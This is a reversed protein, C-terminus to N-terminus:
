EDELIYEIETKGFLPGALPHWLGKVPFWYKIDMPDSLYLCFRNEDASFRTGNSLEVEGISNKGQEFEPRYTDELRSCDRFNLCPIGHTHTTRAFTDEISNNKSFRSSTDQEYLFRYYSNRAYIKIYWLPDTDDKQQKDVSIFSSLVKVYRYFHKNRGRKHDWCLHTNGSYMM